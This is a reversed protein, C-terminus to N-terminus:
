DTTTIRVTRSPADWDVRANLAEGVQRIGILLRGNVTIGESQWVLTCIAGKCITVRKGAADYEVKAGVAEAAARLPVYVRSEHMTPPPEAIITTGNAVLTIDDAACCGLALAGIALAIIVKRM